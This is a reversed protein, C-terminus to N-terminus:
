GLQRALHNDFSTIDNYSDNAVKAVANLAENHALGSRQWLQQAENYAQIAAGKSVSTLGDVVKKLDQMEQDLLRATRQMTTVAQAIEPPFNLQGNAM